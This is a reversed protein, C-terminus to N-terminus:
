TRHPIYDWAIVADAREALEQVTGREFQETVRDIHIPVDPICTNQWVRVEIVEGSPLVARNKSSFEHPAGYDKGDFSFYIASDNM